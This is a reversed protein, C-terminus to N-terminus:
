KPKITIKIDYNSINIINHIEVNNTNFIINGNESKPFASTGMYYINGYGGVGMFKPIVNKLIINSFLSILEILLYKLFEKIGKLFHYFYLM